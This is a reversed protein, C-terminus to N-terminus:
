KNKRKKRKSLKNMTFSFDTGINLNTNGIWYPVLVYNIFKDDYYYSSFKDDYEYPSLLNCKYIVDDDDLYNLRDTLSMYFYRLEDLEIDQLKRKRM